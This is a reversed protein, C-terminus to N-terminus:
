KYDRHCADCAHGIRTLTQSRAPCDAAEVFAAVADRLDSAYQSFVRDHAGPALLAPEVDAAILKLHAATANADPTTCQNDHVLDRVRGLDHQMVNMLARPYANRQGLVNAITVAVLAGLLAGGILCILYRM